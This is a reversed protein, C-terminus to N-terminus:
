VNGAGRVARADLGSDHTGRLWASAPGHCSECSVGDNLEFTKARQEVPVDLAHCALCKASGESKGLGLIRGIREGTASTLATYAKAHKDQVVWTSYENQSIRSGARPTVSGHCSTSSCSGPGTYKGSDAPPAGAPSAVAPVAASVLAGLVVAFCPGRWARCRTARRSSLTAKSHYSMAPVIPM